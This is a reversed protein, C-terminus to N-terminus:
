LIITKNKIWIIYCSLVGCISEPQTESWLQNSFPKLTCINMTASLVTDQWWQWRSLFVVVISQDKKQDDFCIAYYDHM